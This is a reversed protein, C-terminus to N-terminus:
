IDKFRWGSIDEDQDYIGLELLPNEDFECDSHDSTSSTPSNSFDHYMLQWEEDEENSLNVVEHDIDVQLDNTVSGAGVPPAAHSTGALGGGGHCGSLSAAHETSAIGASLSSDEFDLM